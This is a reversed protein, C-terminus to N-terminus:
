CRKAKDMVVTGRQQINKVKKKGMCAFTWRKKKSVGCDGDVKGLSAATDSM